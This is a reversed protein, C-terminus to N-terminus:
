KTIPPTQLPAAASETTPLPMEATLEAIQNKTQQKFAQVEDYIRAAEEAAKASQAKADAARDLVERVIERADEFKEVKNNAPKKALFEEAAEPVIIDPSHEHVARDIADLIDDAAGTARKLADDFEETYTKIFAIKEPDEVGPLKYKLESAFPVGPALETETPTSTATDENVVVPTEEVAPTFTLGAAPENPKVQGVKSWDNTTITENPLIDDNEDKKPQDTSAVANDDGIGALPDGIQGTPAGPATPSAASDSNATDVDSSTSDGALLDDTSIVASNDSAPAAVADDNDSVSTSSDDV